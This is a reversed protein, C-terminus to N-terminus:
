YEEKVFALYRDKPVPHDLVLEMTVVSQGDMTEEKLSDKDVQCPGLYYYNQGEAHSKKVFLEFRNVQRGEEVGALLKKVEGSALTKNPRTFWKIRNASLFHNDYIAKSDRENKTYNVFIPVVGNILKYGYITSGSKTKTNLLISADNRTYEKHLTFVQDPAFSAANFLGAELADIVYTNFLPNNVLATKLKKNLSYYGNEFLVVAEDGYKARQKQYFDLSLVNRVGVMVAENAYCNNANLIEEFEESSIQDQELLAKLLLLEHRRKGPVLEKFLLRLIGQQYETLAPMTEGMDVLFDVYSNVKPRAAMASTALSGYKQFDMLLPIRGIKQKLNLYEKKLSAKSNVQSTNISQYIAEKAVKTYNISSVGIVKETQVRDRLNTRSYSRDGTLAMPILYNNKYNGIFDIVTVYDKNAAKRLGRGLQQVFIISSQTPRLMLVQNICPIDIGENFLDVTILYQLRGEELAKVAAERETQSENSSLSQAPYGKATLQKALEQAETVQRCFILGHLQDGSYGFFNSAEILYDVREESILQNFVTKNDDTIQITGDQGEYESIGIYHFPCLIEEKLADQLRIEYAIQYDFMEFVSFDDNREPTATMGLCFKPTFYNFVKQYSPAGLHHAEDFLIYDFEDQSFEALTEDRKLSQITAFLYRCNLDKQMGSLIGYDAAPGGIVNQFSAKAKQLIQERHVVFLFRKPQVRKVDFAGLYTKGTGTASVILGKDHGTCRLQHLEKLAQEQMLNPAIETRYSALEENIAIAPRTAKPKADYIKQYKAIWDMTLPQATDWAAEIQQKVGHVLKGNQLSTVKLNWEYNKLLANKTLNSSGIILSQYPEGKQQQEFLYGKAHFGPKESIRVEVLGAQQLKLLEKFMKPQNFALYNSTLIKGSIGREKLDWLNSKIMTLAEETIFAVAFTFSQCLDLATKIQENMTDSTENTILRPSMLDDPEYKNQDVYANLTTQTLTNLFQEEM